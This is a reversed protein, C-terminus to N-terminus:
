RLKTEQGEIFGLSTVIGTNVLNIEQSEAEIVRLEGQYNVNEPAPCIICLVWYSLAPLFTCVFWNVDYIRRLVEPLSISTYVQGIVGPLTIEMFLIQVVVARWNFGASYRYRGHPDYLGPVDLKRRKIFWYDTIMISVICCIVSGYGNMFQLFQAATSVLKWPALCWTGIILCIFSGRRVNIYSPLINMADHGFPIANASINCSVQSLIWLCGCLFALFRGGSGTWLSLLEVPSWIDRAYLARGAGVTAIGLIAYITKVIPITLIQSFPAYRTKSLRSYDSMNITMTLWSNTNACLTSLWIWTRASGHITAEQSFIGKVNGARACIWIVTGVSTPVLLVAKWFFLTKLKHLPICFFPVQILFFLLYSMMQLSTIGAFTPLHNEILRYEPWLAAVTETVAFSGIWCNVSFWIIGLAGRTFVVFYGLYYGYSSRVAIPFPIHYDTGPAGSMVTPISNLVGSLLTIIVADSTSLGVIMASAAIQWTTINILDSMWYTAFDWSTWTRLEPLIPEQDKNSAVGPPALSSEEVPLKWQIQSVRSKIFHYHEKGSAYFKAM